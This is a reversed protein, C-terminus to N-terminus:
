TQSQISRELLWDCKIRTNTILCDEMLTLITRNQKGKESDILLDTTEFKGYHHLNKMAQYVARHRSFRFDKPQLDSLLADTMNGNLLMTGLVDQENWQQIEDMRASM